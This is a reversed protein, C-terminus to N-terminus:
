LWGPIQTVAFAIGGATCSEATVLLLRQELLLAGASRALEYLRSAVDSM